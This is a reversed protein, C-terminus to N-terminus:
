IDDRNILWCSILLVLILEIVMIVVYPIAHCLWATFPVSTTYLDAEYSIEFASIYLCMPDILKVQGLTAIFGNRSLYEQTVYVVSIVLTEAKNLFIGLLMVLGTTFSCNLFLLIAFSGARLVIETFSAPGSFVIMTLSIFLSVTLLILLLLITSVGLFKGIIVDRRYLPKSVLVKLSGTKEDAIAIISICMALFSFFTSLTWLSNGLGIYFFVEDHSMFQEFRPLLASNGGANLLAIFLMLVAFAIVIPSKMVRSFENGAITYVPKM